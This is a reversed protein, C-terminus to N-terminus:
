FGRNPFPDQLHVCRRACTLGPTLLNLVSESHADPHGQDVARAVAGDGPRGVEPTTLCSLDDPPEPSVVLVREPGCLTVIHSPSLGIPAPLPVCVLVM